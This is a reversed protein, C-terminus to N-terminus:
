NTANQPGEASVGEYGDPFCPHWMGFKSGIRQSFTPQAYPVYCCMYLM